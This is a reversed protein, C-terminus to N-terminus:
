RGNPQGLLGCRSLGNGVISIKKIRQVSVKSNFDTLYFLPMKAAPLWSQVTVQCRIWYEEISKLLFTMRWSEVTEKGMMDWASLMLKLPFPSCVISALAKRPIQNSVKNWFNKKIWQVSIRDVPFKEDVRISKLLLRSVFNSDDTNKGTKSDMTLPVPNM